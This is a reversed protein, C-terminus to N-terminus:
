QRYVILLHITAQRHNSYLIFKLWITLSILYSYIYGCSTYGQICMLQFIFPFIEERPFDLTSENTMIYLRVASFDEFTCAFLLIKM